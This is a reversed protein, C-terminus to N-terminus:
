FPCDNGPSYPAEDECVVGGEGDEEEEVRELREVSTGKAHHEKQRRVYDLVWPLNRRGFSVVGYGRQWDLVKRHFHDNAEHSSSGKLEQLLGSILVSPRIQVVLHVHTETGNIEELFVGKTQRCRNRLYAHVFSEVDGVLAPADQETHWTLHLFIESYVHGAM